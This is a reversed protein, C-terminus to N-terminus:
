KGTPAKDDAARKGELVDDNATRAPVGPVSEPAIWGKPYERAIEAHHHSPDDHFDMKVSAATSIDKSWGQSPKSTRIWTNTDKDLYVYENRAPVYYVEYSPYYVYDDGIRDGSIGTFGKAETPTDCGALFAIAIASVALFLLTPISFFTESTDTKM